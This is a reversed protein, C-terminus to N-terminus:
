LAPPNQKGRTGCRGNTHGTRRGLARKTHPPQTQTTVTARHAGDGTAEAPRAGRDCRRGPGCARRLFQPVERDEQHRVHPLVDGPVDDAHVPAVAQVLGRHQGALCHGPKRLADLVLGPGRPQRGTFESCRVSQGRRLRFPRASTRKRSIPESCGGGGGGMM